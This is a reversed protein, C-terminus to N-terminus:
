PMIRALTGIVLPPRDRSADAGRVALQVNDNDFLVVITRM